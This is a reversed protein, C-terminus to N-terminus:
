RICAGIGKGALAICDQALYRSTGEPDHISRYICVETLALELDIIADVAAGRGRALTVHPRFPRTDWPLGLHACAAGIAAHLAQLEATSTLELALRPSGQGPFPQVRSGRVRHAPPLRTARLQNSLAALPEAPQDGFFGLTLHLNALPVPRWGSPLHADMWAGLRARDVTSLPCGIFARM